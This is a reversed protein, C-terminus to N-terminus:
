RKIGVYNFQEWETGDSSRYSNKAYIVWRGDVQQVEVQLIELPYNGDGGVARSTGHLPGGCFLYAQSETSVEKGRRNM